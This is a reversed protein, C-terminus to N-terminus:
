RRHELQRYAEVPWDYLDAAAAVPDTHHAPVPLGFRRREGGREVTGNVCLLIRAPEAYLNELESPLDYLGICHPANGPDACEAVLKLGAERIFVDWGMREIACRRIEANSERLIRSVSWGPDLLDSPVRTGHWAHIGWGDPWAIAPGTECHLRNQPDRLLVVPHETLVAFTTFPWWWGASRAIIQQGHILSLGKVELREMMSLWSYYGAWFQGAIVNTWWDSVQDSVQARVQARVQAYVQADVQDYV